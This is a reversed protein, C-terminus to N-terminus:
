QNETDRLGVFDTTFRRAHPPVVGRTYWGAVTQDFAPDYCEKLRGHVSMYSQPPMNCCHKTFSCKSAPAITPNFTTYDYPLHMRNLRASPNKLPGQLGRINTGFSFSYWQNDIRKGVAESYPDIIGTEFTSM